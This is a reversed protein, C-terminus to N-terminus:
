KKFKLAVSELWTKSQVDSTTGMTFFTGMILTLMYEAKHQENM